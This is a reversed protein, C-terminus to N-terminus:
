YYITSPYFTCFVNLFLIFFVFILIFYYLNTLIFFNRVYKTEFVSIQYPGVPLNPILYNGTSSTVTTAEAGTATNRATVTVGPLVAMSRDTVLGTVTGMNTQASLIPMGASILMLARFCAGSMSVRRLTFLMTVGRECTPLLIYESPM